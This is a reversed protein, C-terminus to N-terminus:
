LKPLCTKMEPPFGSRHYDVLVPFIILKKKKKLHCFTVTVILWIDEELVLFFFISSFAKLLAYYCYFVATLNLSRCVAATNEVAGKRGHCREQM